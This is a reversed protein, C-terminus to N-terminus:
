AQELLTLPNDFTPVHYKEAAWDRREARTDCVATLRFRDTLRSITDLHTAGRIGAGIVAIDLVDPM